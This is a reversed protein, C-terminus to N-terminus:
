DVAARTEAEARAEAAAKEEALRKAEAEAKEQWYKEEKFLKRSLFDRLHYTEPLEKKLTCECELHNKLESYAVLKGCSEEQCKFTLQNLLSTEIKSLSVLTKSGCMKFCEYPKYPPTNQYKGDFYHKPVCGSCIVIECKDCKCPHEAIGMCM